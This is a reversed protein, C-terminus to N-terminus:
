PFSWTTTFNRRDPLQFTSVARWTRLCTSRGAMKRCFRTTITHTPPTSHRTYTSLPLLQRGTPLLLQHLHLTGLWLILASPVKNSLFKTILFKTVLLKTILFKSILFKTGTGLLQSGALRAGRWLLSPRFFFLVVNNSSGETPLFEVLFFMLIFFIILARSFILVPCLVM